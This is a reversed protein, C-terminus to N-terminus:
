KNFIYFLKHCCCFMSFFESRFNRNFVIFVFFLISSYVYPLLLCINVMFDAVGAIQSEDYKPQLRPLWFAIIYYLNFSATPFNFFLYVLDILITNRTFRSSMSAMQIYESQCLHSQLRKLRVIVMVDFTMMILYPIFVQMFLANIETAIFVHGFKVFFSSNACIILLFMALVALCLVWKKHMYRVGNVPNYIAIFRHFTILVQLWSISQLLTHAIFDELDLPLDIIYNSFNDWKKFSIEYLIAILNLVCLLAYLHGTNSKFNLSPRIFIFLSILNGVIGVPLVIARIYFYAGYIIDHSRWSHEVSM